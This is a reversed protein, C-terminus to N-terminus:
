KEDDFMLDNFDGIVCWPLNSIEALMRLINWSECRRGRMSVLIGEYEWKSMKSKMIM